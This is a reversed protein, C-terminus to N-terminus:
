HQLYVIKIEKPSSRQQSFAAAGRWQGGLRFEGGPLPLHQQARLAKEGRSEPLCLFRCKLTVEGHTKQWVCGYRTVCPRHPGLRSASPCKPKGTTSQSQGCVGKGALASTRTGSGTPTRCPYRGAPVGMWGWPVRAAWPIRFVPPGCGAVRSTPDIGQGRRCSNWVWLGAVAWPSTAAPGAGPSCFPGARPLQTGIPLVGLSSLRIRGKYDMHQGSFREKVRHALFRDVCVARPNSGTTFGFPPLHPFKAANLM